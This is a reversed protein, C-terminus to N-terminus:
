IYSNWSYLWGAIVFFVSFHVTPIRLIGVGRLGILFRVSITTVCVAILDIMIESAYPASRPGGHHRHSAQCPQRIVIWVYEPANPQALSQISAEITPTTRQPWGLRGILLRQQRVCRRVHDEKGRVLAGREVRVYRKALGIWGPELRERQADVCVQADCGADRERCEGDANNEQRSVEAPRRSQHARVRQRQERRRHHQWAEEEEAQEEEAMAQRTAALLARPQVRCADMLRAGIQAPPLSRRKGLKHRCRRPQRHEQARGVQHARPGPDLEGGKTRRAAGLLLLPQARTPTLAAAAAFGLAAAAAASATAAASSASAAASHSHASSASASPTYSAHMAAGHVVSRIARATAAQGRAAADAATVEVAAGGAEEVAVAGARPMRGDDADSRNIEGGHGRVSGMPAGGHHERQTGWAIRARYAEDVERGSRPQEGVQRELSNPGHAGEIQEWPCGREHACTHGGGHRLLPCRGGAGRYRGYCRHCRVRSRKRGRGDDRAGRQYHVIRM